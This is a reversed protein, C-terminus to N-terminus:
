RQCDVGKVVGTKPDLRLAPITDAFLAAKFVLEIDGDPTRGETYEQGMFSLAQERSMGKAVKECGLAAQMGVGSERRVWLVVAVTFLALGGFAKLVIRKM